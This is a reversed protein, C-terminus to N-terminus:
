APDHAAEHTQRILRRNLKGNPNKPLEDLHVYLRPQKYRALREAAFAALAAEDQPTGTYFAAIVTTDAKVAIETAAVEHIGPHEMLAREVELPSVRVGGANLMDDGRGLYAIAGDEAMEVMDGTLFWEGDFRARTEAEAKLYGLMLGPDRSSIALQGPEGRAVPANDPGLVAIRRGAQPYGSAPLPAPRAPSGSVFTSCESMGLAEYVFTGTAERWASRTTEPMKEGASLGHRLKPLVIQPHKKLMQRYVGPAAAFLTADFRRLLLPLDDPRVGPAPILATAGITWPDLLGTGLTYTWNFAGAHLLRDDARLGYWGEWMMRRAWVARHAHIVGRPQGSTGSTYVIYAPRDPI